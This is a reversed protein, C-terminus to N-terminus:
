IYLPHLQPPADAGDPGEEHDRGSLIRGRAAQAVRLHGEMLVANLQPFRVLFSFWPDGKGLASSRKAVQKLFTRLEDGM